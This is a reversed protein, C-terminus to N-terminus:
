IIKYRKYGDEYVIRNCCYKINVIGIDCGHQEKWYCEKCYKQRFSELTIEKTRNKGDQDILKKLEVM